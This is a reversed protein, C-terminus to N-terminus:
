GATAPLAQPPLFQRGLLHREADIAAQCGSAAATIAQRYRSDAVDGAAFVGPVNTATTGAETIIFGHEDCHLWQQFLQSAPEHGIAVFVGEADLDRRSDDDVMRIRVGTVNGTEVGLIEEVVASTIVTVDSAALAARMVGSARFENRRHVLTVTGAINRLALAEGVAADGGGVVVVDKGAFMPGDCIACYAVGRGELAAESPLGLKRAAAGTAVIVADATREGDLGVVRFPAAGFDVEFVDGFELTAGAAEAQERIKAGLDVGAIGHLGPYNDVKESRSIQGGTDFGEFCVPSLGARAAYLAATYGAPGGGIVIVKAHATM